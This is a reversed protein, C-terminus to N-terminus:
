QPNFEVRSNTLISARHWDQGAPFWIFLGAWMFGKERLVGAARANNCEEAMKNQRVRGM